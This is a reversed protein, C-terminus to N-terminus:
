YHLIVSTGEIILPKLDQGIFLSMEENISFYVIELSIFHLIPITIYYHGEFAM